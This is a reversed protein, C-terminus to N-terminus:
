LPGTLQVPKNEPQADILGPGAGGHRPSRLSTVASKM